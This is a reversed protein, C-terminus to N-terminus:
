MFTYVVLLYYESILITSSSKGAWDKTSEWSNIIREIFSLAFIKQAQFWSSIMSSIWLLKLKNMLKLISILPVLLVKILQMHTPDKWRSQNFKVMNMSYTSCSKRVWQTQYHLSLSTPLSDKELRLDREDKNWLWKLISMTSCSLMLDTQISSWLESTGDKSWWKHQM